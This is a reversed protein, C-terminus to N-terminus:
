IGWKEYISDILGATRHQEAQAPLEVDVPRGEQAALQEVQQGLARRQYDVQM